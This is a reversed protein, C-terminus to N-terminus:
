NPNEPIILWAVLYLIIGAFGMLVLLVLLLRVLTPDIEFYEAIGGCVGALMRNKKSRYVRKIEDKPM